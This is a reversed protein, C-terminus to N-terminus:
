VEYINVDPTFLSILFTIPSILGQWLGLWFGAPDPGTDVMQNPGAACASLVPVAMVMVLVVFTRAKRMRGGGSDTFGSRLSEVLASPGLGGRVALDFIGLACGSLHDHPRRWFLRPAPLPPQGHIVATALANQAAEWASNPASASSESREALMVMHRQGKM